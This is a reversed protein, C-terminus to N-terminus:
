LRGKLIWMYGQKKNQKNYELINDNMFMTNITSQM